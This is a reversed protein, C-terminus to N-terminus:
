WGVLLSIRAGYCIRVLIDRGLEDAGLLFHKGPGVPIGEPTLGTMHFQPIPGM